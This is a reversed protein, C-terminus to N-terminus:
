GVMLGLKELIWGRDAINGTAEIEKKLSAIQKKDAVDARFLKMTYRAFNGYNIQNQESILKKRRLLIRFSEKLSQLAQYEDLEYYTKMLTTKSDLLYFIDSYEVSQLLDLVNDYKKIAFFYRAQNFTYANTREARPIKMKYDEIFSETWKYDKNRLGITVINKYDWQSLEGNTLLINKNLAQQYLELIQKLYNINGYNIRNICYNIAFAFLDKQTEPPFIDTNAFIIKRLSEFYSEEDPEILSMVIYYYAKLLPVKDYKADSCHALIEHILAVEGELSLFAQYHLMAACFRLKTILYYTDLAALTELLNKNTSREQKGELYDHHLVEIRFTTLYYEGSRMPEKEHLKKVYQHMDSFYKGLHRDNFSELVDTYERVPQSYYKELAIFGEIRRAFNTFLRAYDQNNLKKKPYLKKGIMERTLAEQGTKIYPSIYDFLQVFTEDENHMPSCLFKRFRKLEYVSFSNLLQFFKTGTM